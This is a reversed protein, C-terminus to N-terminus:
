IAWILPRLFDCSECPGKGLNQLSYVSPAPILSVSTSLSLPLCLSLSFSLSPSPYQNARQLVIQLNTLSSCPVPKSSDNMSTAKQHSRLSVWAGTFLRWILIMEQAQKHGILAPFDSMVCMKNCLDDNPTLIKGIKFSLLSAGHPPM